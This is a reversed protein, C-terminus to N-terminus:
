GGFHKILLVVLWGLGYGVFSLFFGLVFGLCFKGQEAENWGGKFMSKFEEKWM